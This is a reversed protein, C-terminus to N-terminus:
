EQDLRRLIRKTIEFIAAIQTAKAAGIGKIEMIESLKVGALKEISGYHSILNNSIQTASAGKIGNGLIIALLEAESLSNPGARRFKGGPHNFHKENM